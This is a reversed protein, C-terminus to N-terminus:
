SIGLAFEAYFSTAKSLTMVLDVLTVPTDLM